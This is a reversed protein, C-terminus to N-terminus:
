LFPTESDTTDPNLDQNQLKILIIDQSLSKVKKLTESKDDIFHSWNCKRWNSLM